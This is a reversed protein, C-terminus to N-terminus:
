LYLKGYYMLVSSKCFLLLNKSSFEILSKDIVMEVYYINENRPILKMIYSM